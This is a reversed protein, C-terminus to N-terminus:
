IREYIIDAKEAKKLCFDRRNCNKEEEAKIAKELWINVISRLM